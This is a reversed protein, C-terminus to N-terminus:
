DEDATDDEWRRRRNRLDWRGHPRRSLILRMEAASLCRRLFGNFERLQAVERLLRDVEARLGRMEDTDIRSELRLAQRSRWHRGRCLDSCFRQDSRGAIFTSACDQCVHTRALSSPRYSSAPDDM